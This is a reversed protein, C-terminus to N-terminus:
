FFNFICDFLKVEKDIIKKIRDSLRGFREKANSSLGCWLFLLTIRDWESVISEIEELYKKNISVEYLGILKMLYKKLLLRASIIGEFKILYSIEKVNEKVDKATFLKPLRGVDDAFNYLHNINPESGSYYHYLNEKLSNILLNLSIDYNMVKLREYDIKYHRWQKTGWAKELEKFTMIGEYISVPTTPVSCDSILVGETNIGIIVLTHYRNLIANKYISNYNLNPPSVSIIIPRDNKIDNYIKSKIEDRNRCYEKMSLEINYKKCFSDVIKICDHHLKIESISKANERSYEFVFGNGLFFLISDDMTKDYYSLTNGFSSLLCQSGVSTEYKKLRNM